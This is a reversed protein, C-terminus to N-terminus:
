ELAEAIYAVVKEYAIVQYHGLGKTHVFQAWPFAAKLELGRHFPITTDDEDYILHLDISKLFQSKDRLDFYDISEQHQLYVLDCMRHYVKDSYGLSKVTEYFFFRSYSPAAIIFLQKPQFEGSLESLMVGAAMGGISYGIVAHFPGDAIYYHKLIDRIEVLTTHTGESKGHGKMDIGEIRYGQLLLAEILKRFDAIKSNWGHSLLIRPANEPGWKYV